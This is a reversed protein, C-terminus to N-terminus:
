ALFIRELFSRALNGRRDEAELYYRVEGAGAPLEATLYDAKVM